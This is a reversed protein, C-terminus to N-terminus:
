GVAVFGDRESVGFVIIGGEDQNSFSSLTDYIRKPFGEKVAKLEVSQQETQRRQIRRVLETLEEERM